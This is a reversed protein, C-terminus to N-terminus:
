KVLKGIIRGERKNLLTFCKHRCPIEEKKYLSHMTEYLKFCNSLIAVVTKHKPLKGLSRPHCLACDSIVAVIRNKAEIYGCSPRSCKYENKCCGLFKHSSSHRHDYGKKVLEAVVKQREKNLFFYHWHLGEHSLLDDSPFDCVNKSKKM